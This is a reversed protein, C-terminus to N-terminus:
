VSARFRTSAAAAAFPLAAPIMAPVGSSATRWMANPKRAMEKLSMPM